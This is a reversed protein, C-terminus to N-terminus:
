LQQDAIIEPNIGSPLNGDTRLFLHLTRARQHKEHFKRYRAFNEM